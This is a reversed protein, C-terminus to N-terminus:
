YILEDRIEDDTLEWEWDDGDTCEMIYDFIDEERVRNEIVEYGSEKLEKIFDERKGKYTIITGVPTGDAVLAKYTTM